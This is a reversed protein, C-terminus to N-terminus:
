TPGLLATLQNNIKEVAVASRTSDTALNQLARNTQTDGFQGRAANEGYSAAYSAIQKRLDMEKQATYLDGRIMAGSDAKNGNWSATQQDAIQAQVLQSQLRDITGQLAANTSGQVYGGFNSGNVTTSFKDFVRSLDEVVKVVPPTVVVPISTPISKGATELAKAAKGFDVKNLESVIAQQKAINADWVEGITKKFTSPETRAVADTIEDAVSKGSSRFEELNGVNIQFKAPLFRNIQTAIAEVTTVMADRFVNSVGRFAGSFVAGVMAGGEYIADLIGGGFQGLVKLFQMGLLKLGEESRFNVIIEGAWITARKKFDDIADGARDLAVITETSMVQGAEKAAKTVAPLGIEGLEKMSGFLKPGVKEGLIACVGAYSETSDKSENAAKAIRAYQQDLPLRILDSAALGLKALAATATANGEAADLVTKKTKELAKTLTEESVGNRKHQAELAQLSVVNIGINASADTLNGALDMAGKSLAAFAGIALGAGLKAYENVFSNLENRLQKLETKLGTSDMGFVAKLSYDAM